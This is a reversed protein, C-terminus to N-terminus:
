WRRFGSRGETVPNDPEPPTTQTRDRPRQDEAIRGIAAGQEDPARLGRDGRKKATPTEVSESRAHGAVGGRPSANPAGETQM